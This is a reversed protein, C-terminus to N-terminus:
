AAKQHPAILSLADDFAAKHHRRLSDQESPTLMRAGNSTDRKLNRLFSSVTDTTAEGGTKSNDM